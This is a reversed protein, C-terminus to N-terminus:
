KFSKEHQLLMKKWLGGAYGTMKGNSGIIRPLFHCYSLLNKGNASGVARFAKVNEISVAIDKYTGTEAYPIMTLSNWVLKQLRDGLLM